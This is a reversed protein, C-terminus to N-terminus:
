RWIEPITYRVGVNFFDFQDIKEYSAHIRFRWSLHHQVRISYTWYDIFYGTSLSIRGGRWIRRDIGTSLGFNNSGNLSHFAPEVFLNTRIPQLFTSGKIGTKHFSLDVSESFNKYRYSLSLTHFGRIRRIPNWVEISGGFGYDRNFNAQASVEYEFRRYPLGQLLHSRGFSVGFMNNAIDYDMGVTRLLKVPIYQIIYQISILTADVRLRITVITDSTIKIIEDYYGIFSIQLKTSDRLTTFTFEGEANTITGYVTRYERIIASPVPENREDLVTGLVRRQSFTDVVCFFLLLIM